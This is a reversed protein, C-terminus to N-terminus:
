TMTDQGEDDELSVEESDPVTTEWFALNLEQTLAQWQKQTHWLLVQPMVVATIGYLAWTTAAPSSSFSTIGASATTTPIASWLGGLAKAQIAQQAANWLAQKHRQVFQTLGSIIQLTAWTGTKCWVAVCECNSELLDYDPVIEPHALLFLVRQLVLPAEDCHATSALVSESGRARRRYHGPPAATTESRYIEPESEFEYEVKSWNPDNAPIQFARLGREVTATAEAEEEKGSNDDANDTDQACATWLSRANQLASTGWTRLAGALQQQQAWYSFDVITMVWGCDQHLALDLVIAHHEYAEEVGPLHCWKWIHDGVEFRTGGGPSFREMSTAAPHLISIPRRCVVEEKKGDSPDHHCRGNSDTLFRTGGVNSGNDLAYNTLHAVIAQRKASVSSSRKRPDSM